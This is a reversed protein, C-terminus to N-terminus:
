NRRTYTAKEEPHKRMYKVNCDHTCFRKKATKPTFVAGCEPCTRDELVGNKRGTREAYRQNLRANIVKKNDRQYTTFYGTELLKANYADNRKQRCPASCVTNNYARPKFLTDCVSCPIPDYM